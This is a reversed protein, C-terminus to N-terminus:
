IWTKGLRCSFNNALLYAIEGQLDLLDVLSTVEVQVPSQGVVRDDVVFQHIERHQEVDTSFVGAACHGLVGVVVVEL